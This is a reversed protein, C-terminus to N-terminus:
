KASWKKNVANQKMNKYRNYTAEMFKKLNKHKEIESNYM